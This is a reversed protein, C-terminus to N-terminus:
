ARPSEGKNEKRYKTTERDRSSSKSEESIDVLISTNPKERPTLDVSKDKSVRVPTRDRKFSRFSQDLDGQGIRPSANSGNESM